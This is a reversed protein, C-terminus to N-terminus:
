EFLNTQVFLREDLFVCRGDRVQDLRLDCLEALIDSHRSEHPELDAIRSRRFLLRQNVCIWASIQTFRRVDAALKIGFYVRIRRLTLPSTIAPSPENPMSAPRTAASESSIASTARVPTCIPSTTPPPFKKRPTAAAAFFM